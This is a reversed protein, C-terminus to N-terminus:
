ASIYQIARSHTVRTTTGSVISFILLMTVSDPAWYSITEMSTWENVIPKEVQLPNGFVQITFSRPTINMKRKRFFGM